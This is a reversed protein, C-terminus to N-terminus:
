VGNEGFNNQTAKTSISSPCGQVHSCTEGTDTQLQAWHVRNLHMSQSHVAGGQSRPELVREPLARRNGSCLCDAHTDTAIDCADTMNLIVIKADASAPYRTVNGSLM